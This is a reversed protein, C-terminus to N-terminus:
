KARALRSVPAVTEGKHLKYLGTKKVRGGKKFSGLVGSGRMPQEGPGGMLPQPARRVPMPFRPATGGGPIGGPRRPMPLRLNGGGVRGIRVPMGEGFMRM